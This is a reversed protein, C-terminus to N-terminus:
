ALLFVIKARKHDPHTPHFPNLNGSCESLRAVPQKLSRQCLPFRPLRGIPSSGFHALSQRAIVTQALAAIFAGLVLFHGVELFDASAHRFANMIGQRGPHAALHDTDSHDCGCGCEHKHQDRVAKRSILASGEPFLWGMALGAAVAIVYGLSLRSLAVSGSYSYAVATSVGVIPNVLPAGLLFAVAAPFPIGKGLLRRVGPVVACECVPCAIGLAAASFVVLWRSKPLRAILRERSVYVEILGGALSGLLMFPLAELVIGSFVTALNKVLHTENGLLLLACASLLFLAEFTLMNNSFSSEPAIVKDTAVMPNIENEATRCIQIPLKNNSTIAPVLQKVNITQEM